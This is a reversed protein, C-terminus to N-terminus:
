RGMLFVAISILIGGVAIIRADVQPFLSVVFAILAIIALIHTASM